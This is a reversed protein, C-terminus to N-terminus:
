YVCLLLCCVVLLCLVVFCYCLVVRCVVVCLSCGVVYLLSRCFLCWGVIMCVCRVIVGGLCFVDCCWM